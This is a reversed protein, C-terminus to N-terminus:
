FRATIAARFQRPPGPVAYTPSTRNGFYSYYSEDFANTLTLDLTLGRFAQPELQAGFTALTYAGDSFENDVTYFYDSYYELIGRLSLWDTVQQDAQLYLIHDPVGVPTNGSFDAPGSFTQIVFEEWEPDLYTYNLRLTTTDTPSAILSLELGKSKYLDGFTILNRPALSDNEAAPNDVIQRRNKQESYFVIAEASVRNDLFRGKVGVEVSDITTPRQEPRVYQAADWEFTAGFNSNFGRGYAVYVQGWDTLYSLTAKPSFADASASQDGGTIVGEIPFFTANRSFDDYRLGLTLRLRDTLSIEDQVFAGWFTNDFDSESLPDDFVFCPNNGNLVNGTFFDVEVLYFTFGCEFTFGNQGTWLNLIDSNAQEATVGAIIDHRGTRWRATAEGYFVEQATDSRIGNYGVIGADLNRGFPDYFNLFNERQIDRYSGKFAFALDDSVRHELTLAALINEADNNPDGFGIFGEDGGVFPLIEGEAGLPRGNPLETDRDNYNGYVTLTTQATLDFRAKGFINFIQRRAQDRWGEYDEYSGALLLGGNDGFTREISADARFFGDSGGALRTVVANEDPNRTIYNTAGYLAGRGYLASVPGKVIEIQEIADYPIENLQVEEFLGIIPIGDVLSLSGETGTSGRFSVFPFEDGDGEGRRFFVGTVGRFEDTGVTFGNRRLEAVDQVAISAPTEILTQETRTATVVI